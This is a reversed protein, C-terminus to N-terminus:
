KKPPKKSDKKPSKNDKKAQIFTVQPDDYESVNKAEYFTIVRAKIHNNGDFLEPKLKLTIIEETLKYIAKGATGRHKGKIIIVNGEAIILYPENNEDFFCTMKDATMTTEGNVAEVDITFIAVRNIHDYDLRQSTVELEDNNDSNLKKAPSTLSNALKEKKVPADQSQASLCFALVLIWCRIM